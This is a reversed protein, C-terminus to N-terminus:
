RSSTTGTGGPVLAGVTEEFSTAVQNAIAAAAEASRDTVGIDVVVTDPSTTASVHTALEAATTDLKLEDIVPQLVAPTSVVDTYSKVQNQTFNSGQTLDSVTGASQVSIFVKTTAQYTPVTLISVVSGAAIGLLVLALITVWNKRLIRLYDHIDV